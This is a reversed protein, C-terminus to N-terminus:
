TGEVTGDIEQFWFNKDVCIKPLRVSVRATSSYPFMVDYFSRDGDDVAYSMCQRRRPAACVESLTSHCCRTGANSLLHCSRVMRDARTFCCYALCVPLDEKAARCLCRSRVDAM